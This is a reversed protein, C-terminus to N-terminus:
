VDPFAQNYTGAGSVSKRAAASRQRAFLPVLAVEAELEEALAAAQAAVKAGMGADPGVLALDAALAEALAAMQGAMHAYMGPLPGVATVHALLREALLAVKHFMDFSNM